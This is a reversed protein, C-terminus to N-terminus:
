FEIKIMYSLHNSNSKHYSYSRLTYHLLKNNKIDKEWHLRLTVQLKFTDLTFNLLWLNKKCSPQNEGEPVSFKHRQVLRVMHLSIRNEGSSVCYRKEKGFPTM